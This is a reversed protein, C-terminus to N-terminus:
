IQPRLKAIKLPQEIRGLGAVRIGLDLDFREPCPEVGGKGLGGGLLAAAGIKAIESAGQFSLEASGSDFLVESSFVFRDGVIQVGEQDGLVERMRGFFDSRYSELRQAEEALRRTEEELRRREAEELDARRRQEAAAQALAANLRTGLAEIQVQADADRAESADLLGQLD